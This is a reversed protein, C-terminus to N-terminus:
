SIIGNAKKVQLPLTFFDYIFGFGFLGFTLMYLFGMFSDGLYFKHAGFGGLVFLFVYAWVLEKENTM